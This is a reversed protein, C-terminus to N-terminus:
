GLITLRNPRRVSGFGHAIKSEPNFEVENMQFDQGTEPDGVYVLIDEGHIKILENLKEVLDKAKM